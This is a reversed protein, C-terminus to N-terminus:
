WFMQPSPYTWTNQDGGKPITSQVRDTSLPQRQGPAPLQNPNAPMNNSPDMTKGAGVATAEKDDIRQSYVNYKHPNLYKAAKGQDEKKVPCGSTSTSSKDATASARSSVPCASPESAAATLQATPAPASAASEDSSATTSAESSKGDFGFPCAAGDAHKQKEPPPIERRDQWAGAKIQGEEGAPKSSTAGM